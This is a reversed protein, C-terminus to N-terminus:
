KDIHHMIILANGQVEIELDHTERNKNEEEPDETNNDVGDSLYINRLRVNWLPKM